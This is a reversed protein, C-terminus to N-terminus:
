QTNAVETVFTPPPAAAAGAGTPAAGDEGGGGRCPHPAIACLRRAIMDCAAVTEPTMKDDCLLVVFAFQDRVSNWYRPARARVFLDDFQALIAGVDAPLTDDALARYIRLEIRSVVAQFDPAAHIKDELGHALLDAAAADFPQNAPDHLHAILQAAIKNLAPYFWDSGGGGRGLEEARLYHQQMQAVANLAEDQRNGTKLVMAKRKYASAWLSQREASSQITNLGALMLIAETLDDHAGAMAADLAAQRGQKSAQAKSVAEWAALVLTNGLQELARISASGDNAAVAKRHWAIARGLEGAEVWALGFAEAVRGSGPWTAGFNNELYSVKIWCDDRQESQYRANITVTELALVLAQASGIADFEDALSQPQLAAPDAPRDWCWNPDGYCQYAAWTKGDKDHTWAAMRAAAVADIFRAGHLLHTYFETAFIKATDDDVAWGAVIVCRVGKKILEEAVNAAQTPRDLAGELLRSPDQAGLHCCNVFVLAPIVRMTAIENPGLFTGGSLVVGGHSGESPLAGHGAIHVVRWDREFVTNIVESAEAGFDSEAPSILATIAAEPRAKRITQEVARAEQWAGPLRPYFLPDCKPEGIVLIDGDIGADTAATGPDVTRLRRLLKVRIAWPTDAYSDRAVSGAATDLMEWPIGATGSDLAIQMHANGAMFPEVEPPVLLKFLTKGLQKDCGGNSANQLLMRILTGQTRQARVDERARKTDLTYTLVSDAKGDPTESAVSMIDYTTGRYSTNLTRELAGTGVRIPATVQFAGPRADQLQRLARWADTARDLYIETLHLHSVRPWHSTQLQLNADGVGQAISRAAQAASIGPGGSGILTAALEFSDLEAISNEALRQAWGIVGCRVTSALAQATLEGEAGLGVVIVSEPRPLQLPNAEDVGLNLFIQHTRVADPYLGMNISASMSGGILLDMVHEAGTLLSSRYHGLLVPQRVFKLSGNVVTLKLPPAVAAQELTGGADGGICRVVEPPGSPARRTARNPVFHSRDVQRAKEAEADLARGFWTTKGSQLLELYGYFASEHSALKGHECDTRWAPVGPLLASGLTVRGDGQDPAELYMLGDDRLAYGDPTFRAQGLVMALKGQAGLAGSDRQADLRRRLAVAKDLVAQPPVGWEFARIQLLVNHWPSSRKVALADRAALDRWTAEQDLGLGADLLGAQLQIFGPFSAMLARAEGDRFPAGFAVLANGFSDDGSLMQMPAWSGGNPTGLMVVSAGARSVMRTWTDPSELQMVRALLGGMSHALLRVPQQQRERLDLQEEVAAALRKAEVEIPKRWDFAFEIVDHTASLFKALGSYALGVAGDPAVKTLDAADYKLLDLGNAMGAGLWIRRGDVKLNSGLIGPLIFVVPRGPDAPRAGERLGGSDNGAASLPGIARYGDPADQTLANVAAAATGPNSFYTFHSVKGGQDLVFTAGAARPAGGYMSSTQVVFDNDTWYYADSLLTKIWSGISDGKVDGAVVRLEGHIPQSAAHLWKVLASDPMQAALGPIKGPDAKNQAVDGLFGVLGPLVPIQAAELAWKLVSIYADLRKSALLTGRAPCAVRVIREVRIDNQRVLAVLETLDAADGPQTAFFAADAAGLQDISCARALAEAVLGGRSHTLLHLRAGPALTRALVLANNIPSEGLTPHDFGYVQRAYRDFLQNVMPAHQEWLKGFTGSTNSFTGHLLVLLPAGDAPAPISALKAGSGKLPKLENPALRYVGADVQDDVKAVVVGATANAASTSSVGTLVDFGAIIVKDIAGRQRVPANPLEWGLSSPVQLYPAAAGDRSAAPAGGQQAMLLDRANDPHLMLSPGNAIHIVVVDGPAAAVLIGADSGRLTGVKVSQKLRAGPLQTLLDRTAGGSPPAVPKGHVLFTITAM